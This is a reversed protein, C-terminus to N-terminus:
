AISCEEKKSTPVIRLIWRIFMGRGRDGMERIAVIRGNAIGKAM